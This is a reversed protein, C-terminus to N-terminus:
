NFDHNFDLTIELEYMSALVLKTNKRIQFEMVQTEVILLHLRFLLLLKRLTTGVTSLDLSKSVKPM